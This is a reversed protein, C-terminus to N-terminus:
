PRKERPREALESTTKGRPHKAVQINQEWSTEGEPRKAGVYLTALYLWTVICLGTTYHPNASTRVYLIRINMRIDSHLLMRLPIIQFGASVQVGSGFRDVLM